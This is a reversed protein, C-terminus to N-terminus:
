TRRHALAALESRNAVDLKAFVHRLHTKVTALTMFLQEAIEANALGQSVLNVVEIETPTLSSWGAASRRRSGRGRKAYGAAAAITMDGGEAGAAALGDVGMADELAALDAERRARDAPPVPTGLRGREASAASYLRTAELHRRTLAALHAIFELSTLALVRDGFALAGTLTADASARAREIDDNLLAFEAEALAAFPRGGAGRPRATWEELLTALAAAAGTDGEAVALRTKALSVEAFIPSVGLKESIAQARELVAAAAAEGQDRLSLGEAWLAFAVALVSNIAQSRATAEEAAAAALDYLGRLGLIRALIAVVISGFLEDGLAATIETAAACHEMAEDLAGQTYAALAGYVFARGRMQPNGNADAVSVVEDVSELMLTRDGTMWGAMVLGSLTVVHFYDDGAARHLRLADRLPETPDTHATYLSGYAIVGKARGLAREDGAEEAIVLAEEGREIMAALNGGQFLLYGLSVLALARSVPEGGPLALAETLRTAGEHARNRLWFLFLATAMRMADDSRGQQIRWDLAGRLNDVERDLEDLAGVMGPGELAPALRHALAGYYDAHRDRIVEIEGAAILKTMAFQRMSELLTFRGFGRDTELVVLSKDVLASLVDLVARREVAVAPAIAEAAYLDFGGVFAALRGFLARQDDDLLSYSWELSAELTRHRPLAAAGGGTLLAFRDKLQDAILTPSLSSSRAAALEIALPIGDLRRCIEAVADRNADDLRFTARTFQAREVFLRVAEGVAAESSGRGSAPLSLSPVRWTMEGDAGLPERSTAVVTLRPCARVLREVLAACAETLHECNDLVLLSVSPALRATLTEEIDQQPIQGVGIAEAIRAPVLSPDALSALDAIWVGGPCRDVVAAALHLGLRTKGCGGPGTLTLLHTDAVLATLARMETSRGVFSTLQVPLNNPVDDLSRLVSATGSRGVVVLELVHEPRGLDRPRPAGRDDLTAASGLLSRMQDGAGASLLIQDAVALSLVRMVRRWSPDAVDGVAVDVDIADLAWRSISADDGDVPKQLELVCTLADWAHDFTAAFEGRKRADCLTGGSSSVLDVFREGVFDVRAEAQDDGPASEASGTLLMLPVVHGIAM